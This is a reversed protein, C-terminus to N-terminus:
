EIQTTGIPSEDREPMTFGLERLQRCYDVLSGKRPRKEPKMRVLQIRDKTTAEIAWTEGQAVLDGLNM